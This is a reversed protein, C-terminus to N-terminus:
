QTPKKKPFKKLVHLPIKRRLSIEVLKAVEDETMPTRAHQNVFRTLGATTGPTM